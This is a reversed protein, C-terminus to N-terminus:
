LNDYKAMVDNRDKVGNNYKQMFDNRQALSNTPALMAGERFLTVSSIMALHV